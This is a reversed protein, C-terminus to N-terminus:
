DNDSQARDPLDLNVITVFDTRLRDTIRKLAGHLACAQMSADPAPNAASNACVAEDDSDVITSVQEALSADSAEIISHALQVDNLFGDVVEPFGADVIVDDFGPGNGGTLLWEFVYLNTRINDLSTHAFKSEVAEPCSSQLCDSHIGTPVGLKLDKTETEIYFIADSLQKIQAQADGPNVFRYRYNGGEPLWAQVLQQAAANVDQAVQVAYDCRMQRRQTEGLENWDQTETIQSPCSHELDDNFLLYELAPLGRSNVSRSGIDFGDGQALVVSQDVACTSLSSSSGFSYIRNRLAGGNDTLPGLQTLEARQWREMLQRWAIQAQVRLMEEVAGADSSIGDCYSVLEGGSSAFDRSQGAFNEYQPILIEDAYHALMAVWDFEASTTNAENSSPADNNVCASLSAALLGIALVRFHRHLRITM